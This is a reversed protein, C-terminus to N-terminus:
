ESASQARKAAWKMGIEHGLSGTWATLSGVAAGMTVYAYGSNRTLFAVLGLGATTALLKPVVWLMTPDNFGGEKFPSTKTMDVDPNEGAYKIAAAAVENTAADYDGPNRWADIMENRRYDNNGDWISLLLNGGGITLLELAMVTATEAAVLANALRGSTKHAISAAKEPNAKALKVWDTKTGAYAVPMSRALATSLSM